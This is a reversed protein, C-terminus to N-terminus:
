FRALPAETVSPDDPCGPFDPIPICDLLAQLEYDPDDESIDFRNPDPETSTDIPPLDKFMESLDHADPDYEGIDFGDSEPETDIPPLGQSWIGALQTDAPM